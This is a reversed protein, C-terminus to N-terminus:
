PGTTLLTDREVKQYWRKSCGRRPAAVLWHYVYVRLKTCLRGVWRNERDIVGCKRIWRVFKHAVVV